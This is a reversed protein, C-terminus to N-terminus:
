SDNHTTLRAGRGIGMGRGFENYHAECVYAWAGLTLNADYEAYEIAPVGLLKCVDCLKREELKVVREEM